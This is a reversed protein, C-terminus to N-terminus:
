SSEITTAKTPRKCECKQDLESPDCGLRAGNPLHGLDFGLLLRSGHDSGQTLYFVSRLIPLFVRPRSHRVRARHRLVPCKPSPFLITPGETRPIWCRFIRRLHSLHVKLPHRNLVRRSSLLVLNFLVCWTLTFTLWYTIRWAVLLARHPLWIGRIAEDDPSANSALDIPVLLVISAPLWLGFFVPVLLYAPTTRLTLYRRLILLVVISLVALAVCAFVISGVPLRSSAIQLM